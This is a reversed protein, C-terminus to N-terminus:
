RSYKALFEVPTLVACPKALTAPFHRKNGTILATASSALAVELFPEDFPDPLRRGLPECSVPLGYEELNSVFEAVVGADFGFKKRGFVEKYEALIRVDYAPQIRGVTVMRLIAAPPSYAKLIGSVVVNTDIVVIM